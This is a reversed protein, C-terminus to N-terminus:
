DSCFYCVLCGVGWIYCSKCILECPDPALVGLRQPVVQATSIADMSRMPYLESPWYLSVEATFGPMNM